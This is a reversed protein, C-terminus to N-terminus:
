GRGRRALQTCYRKYHNVSPAGPGPFELREGGYDIRIAAAKALAQFWGNPFYGEGQVVGAFDSVPTLDVDFTTDGAIISAPTAEAEPRRIQLGGRTRDHCTMVIEPIGRGAGDVRVLLLSGTVGHALAWEYTSGDQQFRPRELTRDVPPQCAALCVGLCTFLPLVLPKM